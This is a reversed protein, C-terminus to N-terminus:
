QAKIQAKSIDNNHAGNIETGKEIGREKEKDKEREREREEIRGKTERITRNKWGRGGDRMWKERDRREGRRVNVKTTRMGRPRVHSSLPKTGKGEM